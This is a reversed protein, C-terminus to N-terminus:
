APTCADGVELQSGPVLGLRELDGVAVEIAYAYPGDASYRACQTTDSTTCPEMDTASVFTGQEDYFAISLPILTQYMWFQGTTAGGFDFLMGPAAGLSTVEMLGREREAGTAALWLCWALPDVGGPPTVRVSVGGYGEPVAGADAATTAAATTAAATTAAASTGPLTTVAGSTVPAPTTSTPAATGDDGSRCGALALAFALAVPGLRRV